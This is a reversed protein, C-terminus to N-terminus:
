KVKGPREDCGVCFKSCNETKKIEPVFLGQQWFSDVAHILTAEFETVAILVALTFILQVHSVLGPEGATTKM